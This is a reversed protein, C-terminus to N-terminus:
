NNQAYEKEKEAIKQRLYKKYADVNAFSEWHYGQWFGTLDHYREVLAQVEPQELEELLTM